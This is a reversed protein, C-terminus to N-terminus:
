SYAEMMEVLWAHKKPSPIARYAKKLMALTQAEGTLRVTQFPLGRKNTGSRTVINTSDAAIYRSLLRLTIITAKKM